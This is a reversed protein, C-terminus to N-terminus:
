EELWVYFGVLEERPEYTCWDKEELSFEKMMHKMYAKFQAHNRAETIKVEIEEDSNKELDDLM